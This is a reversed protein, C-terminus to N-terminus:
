IQVVQHFCLIRALADFGKHLFAFGDPSVFLPHVFPHPIFLFNEPLTIFFSHRARTVARVLMAERARREEKMGGGEARRGENM